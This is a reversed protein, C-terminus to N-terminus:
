DLSPWQAAGRPQMACADLESPTGMKTVAVVDVIIVDCRVVGRFASAKVEFGMSVQLQPNGPEYSPAMREFQAAKNFWMARVLEQHGPWKLTLCLHAEKFVKVEVVEVTATFVPPEFGRGMPELAVLQKALSLSPPADLDRDVYVTKVQSLQGTRVREDWLGALTVWNRADIKLGAAAAHGGFGALLTPHAQHIDELAQRVDFGEVSRISGTLMQTSGPAPSLCITPRHFRDVIRSAVIGHVAPSGNELFLTLGARGAQVEGSAVQIADTVLAREVEKRLANNAELLTLQTKANALDRAILFRIGECADDMRGQANIRPGIEFAIDRATMGGQLAAEAILPMVAWCPRTQAQILPIGQQVFWRNMPSALSVADAVTGVAVFDLLHRLNPPLRPVRNLQELRNRVASMVLWMVGVGAIAKDEYESDLRSPNITAVASAPPGESPVHHHDTVITEIGAERLRRIQAEDSSGQDATIVLAPRPSLALIRDAVAASLGYGEKLKHSTVIHLNMPLMGFHDVMAHYLVAGSTCGDADHDFVGAIVQGKALAHLIREVGRNLDPLRTPDPLSRLSPWILAPDLGRALALEALLPHVGYRSAAQEIIQAPPTDRRTLVSPAQLHINM